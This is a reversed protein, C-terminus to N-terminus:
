WCVPLRRSHRRVDVRRSSQRSLSSDAPVRLPWGGEPLAGRSRVIAPSLSPPRRRGHPMGRLRSRARRCGGRGASGHHCRATWPRAGRSGPYPGADGSAGRRDDGRRRSSFRCRPVRSAAALVSGCGPCDRRREEPACSRVGRPSGDQQRRGGAAAHQWGARHPRRCRRPLYHGTPRFARAGEDAHSTGAHKSPRDARDARAAHRVVPIPRRPGAAYNERWDSRLPAARSRQRYRGSSRRFGPAPSSPRKHPGRRCTM